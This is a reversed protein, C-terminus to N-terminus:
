TGPYPPMYRISMFSLHIIIYKLPVCELYIFMLVIKWLFKLESGSILLCGKSAVSREKIDDFL